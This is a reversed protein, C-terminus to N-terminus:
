RLLRWRVFAWDLLGVALGLWTRASLSELAKSVAGRVVRVLRGGRAIGGLRLAAAADEDAAAV